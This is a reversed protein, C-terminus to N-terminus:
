GRRSGSPRLSVRSINQFDQNRLHVDRHLFRRAARAVRRTDRRPSRGSAMMHSSRLWGSSGSDVMMFSTPVVFVVMAAMRSRLWQFALLM